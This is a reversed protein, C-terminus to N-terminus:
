KGNLIETIEMACRLGDGVAIGVQRFSGNVVDGAFRLPKDTKTVRLSDAVFDDAPERGVAILVGDCRLDPLADDHFHVYISASGEPRSFSRPEAFALLRIMDNQQARKRLLNLSRPESSRLCITIRSGQESLALAYDFAADGGGIICVDGSFDEPLDRREYFVAEGRLEAEGPIDLHRPRCGAAIIAAKARIEGESHHAIFHDAGHTLHKIELNHVPIDHELLHNNFREALAEGSIGPPAGPYNEVRHANLLAGGTRDKEVLLPEWGSRKIQVAAAIGAPGAGIILVDTEATKLM